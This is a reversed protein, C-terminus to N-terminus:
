GARDHRRAASGHPHRDHGTMSGVARGTPRVGPPHHRPHTGVLADVWAARPDADVLLAKALLTLPVALIAGLPGLIWGWLVLSVFTATTSLGVANGVFRPQIVSQVVFNLVGYLAVVALAQRWGGQLLALVAPPLVGLVFGINPIYNTMFALVGWLVSLSVGLALLGVTDLAAVVLGFVTTVLVYRRTGHVFGALAPGLAPRGASVVVRRLDVSAADMSLFLLLSLIFVLSTGISAVSSLLGGVYRVLHQFDVGSAATRVQGPGVGWRGLAATAQHVLTDARDAYDSLLTALQAVSVVLILVLSAVVAYVLVVLLGPALWSPVGHRRLWRPVPNIVIVIVMALFLPGILWAAAACGAMIVVTAATGGLLVLARSLRPRTGDRPPQEGQRSRVRAVIRATPSIDM